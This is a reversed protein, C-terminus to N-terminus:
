RNKSDLEICPLAVALELAFEIHSRRERFLCNNELMEIDMERYYPRINLRSLQLVISSVFHLGSM